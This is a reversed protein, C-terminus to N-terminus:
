GSQGDRGAYLGIPNGTPDAFIAFWGMNPIETRAVMVSGGLAQVKALDADIDDSSVYTCVYGPKIGAGDPKVFAGGSGPTAVFM